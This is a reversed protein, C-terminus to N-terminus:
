IVGTKLCLECIGAYCGVFLLPGLLVVVWAHKSVWTVRSASLLLASPVIIFLATVIRYNLGPTTNLSTANFTVFAVVAVATAAIGAATGVRRWALVAILVSLVSAEILFVGDPGINLISM